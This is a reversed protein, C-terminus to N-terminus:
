ISQESLRPDDQLVLGNVIRAVAEGAAILAGKSAKRYILLPLM